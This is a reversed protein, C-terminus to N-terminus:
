VAQSRAKRAKPASSIMPPHASVRAPSPGVRWYRGLRRKSGRKSCEQPSLSRSPPVAAAGVWAQGLLSSGERARSSTQASARRTGSCPRCARARLRRPHREEAHRRLSSGALSDPAGRFFSSREDSAGEPVKVPGFHAHPVRLYEAQGGPVQGYLKTYGFRAAGKRSEKVQITEVALLSRSRV